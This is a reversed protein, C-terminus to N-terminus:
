CYCRTGSSIGEPPLFSESQWFIEKSATTRKMAQAVEPRNHLLLRLARARLDHPTHGFEQELFPVTHAPCTCLGKKLRALKECTNPIVDGIHLFPVCSVLLLHEAFVLLRMLVDFFYPQAPLCDCDVLVLAYQM